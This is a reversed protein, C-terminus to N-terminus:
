VNINNLIKNLSEVDGAGSHGSLDGGKKLLNPM